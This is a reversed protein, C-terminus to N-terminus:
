KIQRRQQPVRWYEHSPPGRVLTTVYREHMGDQVRATSELQRRKTASGCSAITARLADIQKHVELARNHLLRGLQGTIIGIGFTDGVDRKYQHAVVTCYRDIPRISQCVFLYVSLALSLSFSDTRTRCRVKDSANRPRM